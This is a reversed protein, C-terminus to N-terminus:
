ISQANKKKRNRKKKKKFHNEFTSCSSVMKFFFKCLFFFYFCCHYYFVQTLSYILSQASPDSNMLKFIHLLSSVQEGNNANPSLSLSLFFLFEIIENPPYPAPFLFNSNCVNYCYYILIFNKKNKKIKKFVQKQSSSAQQYNQSNRLTVGVHAALNEIVTEDVPSFPKGGVKNIAQLM